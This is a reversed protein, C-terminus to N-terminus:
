IMGKGEEKTVILEYSKGEAMPKVSTFKKVKSGEHGLAIYKDGGVHLWFLAGMFYIGLLVCLGM